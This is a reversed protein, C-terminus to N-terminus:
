NMKCLHQNLWFHHKLLEYEESSISMNHLHKEIEQFLALVDAYIETEDGSPLRCNLLLNRKMKIMVGHPSSYYKDGKCGKIFDAKYGSRNGSPNTIGFYIPEIADLPDTVEDEYEEEFLFHKIETTQHQVQRSLADFQAKVYEHLKEIAQLEESDPKFAVDAGAAILAGVPGAVRVFTVAHQSVFKLKSVIDYTSSTLSSFEDVLNKVDETDIALSKPWLIVM